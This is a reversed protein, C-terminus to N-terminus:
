VIGLTPHGLDRGASWVAVQLHREFAIRVEVIGLEHALFLDSLETIRKRSRRDSELLPGPMYVFRPGGAALPQRRVALYGVDVLRKLRAKARTKSRFFRLRMAQDRTMVGFRTIENLLAQDRDTLGLGRGTMSARKSTHIRHLSPRCPQRRQYMACRANSTQGHAHSM